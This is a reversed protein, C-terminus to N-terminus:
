DLRNDNRSVKVPFFTDLKPAIVRESTDHLELGRYVNLLWALPLFLHEM